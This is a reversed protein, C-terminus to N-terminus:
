LASQRSGSRAGYLVNQEATLHPFLAHNQFVFGVRRDQVPMHVGDASDFFRRQGLMIRGEDPPLIGAVARLISTKGAGSHGFLVTIGDAAQLHVDIWFPNGEAASGLKMKIRADLM